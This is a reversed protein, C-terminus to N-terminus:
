ARDEVIGLIEDLSKIRIDAGVKISHEGRDIHVSLVGAARAAEADEPTDGVFVADAAAVGLIKLCEEIGEPSPKPKVMMNLDKDFAVVIADFQIGHERLIDIEHHAMHFVANTVVGVKTGNEALKKVVRIDEYPVLHKTREDITDYDIFKKWFDLPNGGLESVIRDKELGFWLREVNEYSPEIGTDAFCRKLLQSLYEPKTHILTGDLDFIVAKIKM